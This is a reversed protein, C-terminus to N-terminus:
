INGMTVQQETSGYNGGGGGGIWNGLASGLQAGGPGGLFAGGMQGLTGWIPNPQYVQYNNAEQGALSGATGLGQQNLAGFQQLGQGWGGYLMQALESGAQNAFGANALAQQLGMGQASQVAQGLSPAIGSALQRQLATQADLAGGGQIGMAALQNNLANTSSQAQPAFGQLIMQLTTQPSVDAGSYVPQLPNASM